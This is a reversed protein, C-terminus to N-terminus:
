NIHCYIFNEIDDFMNIVESRKLLTEKKSIISNYSSFKWESPKEVFGAEIPNNHTYIIVNKLYVQDEIPERKFRNTFLSGMRNNEKNYAKAYSNFFHSFQRSLINPIFNESKSMDSRDSKPPKSFRTARAFENLVIKGNKVKIVFHFHNPMLCYAYIDIYNQLYEKLKLLFFRYNESSNFFNDKGVAHNYIHFMKDAELLTKTNAM